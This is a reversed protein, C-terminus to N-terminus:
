HVHCCSDAALNPSLYPIGLGLGRFILLTALLLVSAPMVRSLKIRFSRSILNGSLSIAMMLPLTGLGFVLMYLAGGCLSGTATAGAAAVYVLGCPLLGNLMGLAALSVFSRQRLFQSMGTRLRSVLASIPKAAALRNSSFFGALLALGLAISSWRQLGALFLTKGLTGFLVGLLAYTAIRGFNYATRGAFFSIAGTAPTPLALALPGCMGACHLSGALGLVLATWYDM